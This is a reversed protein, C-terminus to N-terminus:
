ANHSEKHANITMAGRRVEALVMGIFHTDEDASQLLKIRAIDSKYFYLVTSTVGCRMEFPIRKDEPPLPIFAPSNDM